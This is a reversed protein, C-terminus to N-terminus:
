PAPEPLFLAPDLPKGVVLSVPEIILTGVTPMNEMRLSATVPRWSEAVLVLAPDVICKNEPTCKLQVGNITRPVTHMAVLSARVPEANVPVPEGAVVKGDAGTELTRQQGGSTVFITISRNLRTECGNLSAGDGHSQELWFLEERRVERKGDDAYTTRTQVFDQPLAPFPKVAEHRTQAVAVCLAYGARQVQTFKELSEPRIQTVLVYSKKLAGAVAPPAAADSNCAALLLAPVLVTGLRATWQEHMRKMWM